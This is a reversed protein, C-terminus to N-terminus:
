VLFHIRTPAYRHAFCSRVLVVEVRSSEGDMMITKTAKEIWTLMMALGLGVELHRAMSAFTKTIEGHFGLRLNRTQVLSSVCSVPYLPTTRHKSCVVHRLCIFLKNIMSVRCISVFMSFVYEDVATKRPKPLLKEALTKRNENSSWGARVDKDEDTREAVPSSEETETETTVSLAPQQEGAAQKAKRNHSEV